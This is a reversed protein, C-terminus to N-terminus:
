MRGAPVPAPAPAPAAAAAAGKIGWICTEAVTACGVEDKKGSCIAAFVDNAGDKLYCVAVNKGGPKMQAMMDGYVGNQGALVGLYVWLGGIILLLFTALIPRFRLYSILLTTLCCILALPVAIIVVLWYGITEGGPLFSLVRYIPSFLLIWGAVLLFYSVVRIICTRTGEDDGEKNVMQTKNMAGRQVFWVNGLLGDKYKCCPLCNQDKVLKQTLGFDAKPNGVITSSVDAKDSNSIPTYSVGHDAAGIAALCKAACSKDEVLDINDDPDAQLTKGDPGLGVQKAIISCDFNAASQRFELKVDGIQPQGGSTDWVGNSKDQFNLGGTDGSVAVQIPTWHLFDESQDRMMKQTIGYKGCRANAVMNTGDGNKVGQWGPPVVNRENHRTPQSQPSPYWGQRIKYETTKTSGGGLTDTRTSETTYEEYQYIFATMKLAVANTSKFFGQTWGEGTVEAGDTEVKASIFVLENNTSTTATTADVKISKEEAFEIRKLQKVHEGENAYILCPIFCLLFCGGLAMYFSEGVREGYGKRSTTTTGTSQLRRGQLEEGYGYRNAEAMEAEFLADEPEFGAGKRLAPRPEAFSADLASAGVVFLSACLLLARM